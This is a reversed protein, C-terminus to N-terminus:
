AENEIKNDGPAKRKKMKKLQKVLEQKTIEEDEEEKNEEEEEDKEKEEELTVRNRTGELLMMFYKYWREIKISEVGERKM